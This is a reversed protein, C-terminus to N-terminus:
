NPRPTPGSIGAPRTAGLKHLQDMLARLTAVFRGRLRMYEKAEDLTQWRVDNLTRGTAEWDGAHAQLFKLLDRLAESFDANLQYMPRETRWSIYNMFIATERQRERQFMGIEGLRQDLTGPIRDGADVMARLSTVAADMELVRSALIAPNTLEDLHIAQMPKGAYPLAALKNNWDAAMAARISAALRARGVWAERYESLTFLFVLTAFLATTLVRPRRFMRWIAWTIVIAFLPGALIRGILYPIADNRFQPDNRAVPLGFVIEVGVYLWLPLLVPWGLRFKPKPRARIEAQTPPLRYSLIQSSPTPAPTPEKGGADSM